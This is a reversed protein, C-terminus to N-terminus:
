SHTGYTGARGNQSTIEWGETHHRFRGNQAFCTWIKLKKCFNWNTDCTVEEKPTKVAYSSNTNCLICKLDM